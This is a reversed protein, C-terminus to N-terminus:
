RLRQEPGHWTTVPDLLRFGYPFPETAKGTAVIESVVKLAQLLTVHDYPKSLCAHGQVEHGMAKAANGTSYLVGLKKVSGLRPPIDTGIDGDKLRIDIIALDPEHSLALAVADSVTRCHRV